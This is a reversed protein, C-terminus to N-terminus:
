CCLCSTAGLCHSLLSTRKLSLASYLDGMLDLQGCFVDALVSPRRATILKRLLLPARLVLTFTPVGVGLQHSCDNWLCLAVNGHFGHLLRKVIRLALDAQATSREQLQSSTTLLTM